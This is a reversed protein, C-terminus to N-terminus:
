PHKERTLGAWLGIAIIAGCFLAFSYWINMKEGGM